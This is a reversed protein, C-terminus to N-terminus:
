RGPKDIDAPTFQGSVKLPPAIPHGQEDLEPPRPAIPESSVIGISTTTTSFPISIARSVALSTWQGSSMSGREARGTWRDIRVLYPVTGRWEYRPLAAHALLALAVLTIGIWWDRRTM